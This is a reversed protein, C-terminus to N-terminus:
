KKKVGILRGITHLAIADVAAFAAAGFQGLMTSIVAVAVFANRGIYLSNEFFGPNSEKRSM